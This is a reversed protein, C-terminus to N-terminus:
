NCADSAKGQVVAAEGKSAEEFNGVLDPVDDDDDDEKDPNGDSAAAAGSEAATTALRKLHSLSEPGLQNLIGTSLRM